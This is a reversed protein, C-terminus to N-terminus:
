GISAISIDIIDILAEFPLTRQGKFDRLLALSVYIYVVDAM